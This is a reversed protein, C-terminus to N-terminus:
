DKHSGLGQNGLRLLSACHHWSGWTEALGSSHLKSCSFHLDTCHTSLTTVHRRHHAIGLLHSAVTHPLQQRQSIKLPLELASHIASIVDQLFILHFHFAKALQALGSCFTGFGETFCISHQSRVLLNNDGWFWSSRAHSSFPLRWCCFFCGKGTCWQRERRHTLPTSMQLQIRLWAISWCFSDTWDLHSGSVPSVSSVSSCQKFYPLNSVCM